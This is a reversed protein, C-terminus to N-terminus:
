LISHKTIDAQDSVKGAEGGVVGVGAERGGGVLHDEILSGIAGAIAAIVIGTRMTIIGRDAKM